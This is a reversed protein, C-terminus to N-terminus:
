RDIPNITRDDNKKVKPLFLSF